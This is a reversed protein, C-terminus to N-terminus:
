EEEDDYDEPEEYLDDDEILEAISILAQVPADAASVETCDYSNSIELIIKDNELRVRDLTYVGDVNDSGFILPCDNSNELFNAIRNDHAKIAETIIEMAGKRAESLKGWLVDTKKTVM